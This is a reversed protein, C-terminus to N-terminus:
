VNEIGTTIDEFKSGTYKNTIFYEQFTVGALHRFLLKWGYDRAVSYPNQCGSVWSLIKTPSLTWCLLGLICYACCFIDSSFVSSPLLDSGNQMCCGKGLTACSLALLSRGEWGSIEAACPFSLTSLSLNAGWAKCSTGFLCSRELRLWFVTPPKCVATLNLLSQSCSPSTPVRLVLAGCEKFAPHM